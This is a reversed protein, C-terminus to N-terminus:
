GPQANAQIEQLNTGGLGDSNLAEIAVFDFNAAAWAAGYVNRASVNTNTTHCVQCSANATTSAPYLLIFDDLYNSFAHAEGASMALALMFFIAGASVMLTKTRM